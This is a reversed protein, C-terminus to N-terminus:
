PIAWGIEKVGAEAEKQITGSVKEYDHNKILSGGGQTKTSLEWLLYDRTTQAVEKGKEEEALTGGTPLIYPKYERLALDYTLGCIPYKVQVLQAKVTAWIERTSVPPIVEGVKGVYKTNACNSNALKEIDQNSAPDAYEVGAVESNQIPAWFKHNQEGVKTESGKKNEGGCEPPKVPSVCKKSFFGEKRAAALDAYSISSPKANVEGIVGPNGKLFPRVVKAAAPWRQNECGEQVNEWSKSEPALVVGCPNKHLTGEESIENFEEAEFKHPEPEAQALFSKFIHTTGSKDTRVVVNIPTEEEAAGGTCTIKDHADAQAAEVEKWNRIEGEFIKAVTTDDLALRGEKVLKTAVRAEDQAVCGSPLHIIVADSGQLVPISEITRKETDSAAKNAEMLAVGSANPAEDTGCYPYEEYKPAAGDGFGKLCAGSGAHTGTSEYTATPKKLDGQGTNGACGLVNTNTSANFDINWVSEQAPAQFTSGQGKINAGSCQSTLDSTASATGAAAMAVLAFVAVVSVFCASLMRRASLYTM